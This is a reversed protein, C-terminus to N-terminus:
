EPGNILKLHYDIKPVQNDCVYSGNTGNKCDFSIWGINDGWAWGRFASGNAAINVGYNTSGCPRGDNKGDKCYLSIWGLNQNWVWGRMAYDTGKKLWATYPYFYRATTDFDLVGEDMAPPSVPNQTTLGKIVGEKGAAFVTFTLAAMCSFVILFSVIKSIKFGKEM